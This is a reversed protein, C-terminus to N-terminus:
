EATGSACNSSAVAVTGGDPGVVPLLASGWADQGFGGAGPLYGAAALTELAGQLDPPLHKEKDANADVWSQISRDVVAILDLTLEARQPTVDVQAYLDDSDGLSGNAGSSRIELV